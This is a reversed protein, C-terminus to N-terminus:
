PLLVGGTTPFTTTMAGLIMALKLMKSEGNPSDCCLCWRPNEVTNAVGAQWEWANNRAM